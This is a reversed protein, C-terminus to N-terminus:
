TCRKCIGAKFGGWRKPRVPMRSPHFQSNLHGVSVVVAVAGSAEQPQVAQLPPLQLLQPVHHNLKGEPFPKGQEFASPQLFQAVEMVFHEVWGEEAPSSLAPPTLRGLADQERTVPKFPRPTNTLHKATSQTHEARATNPLEARSLRTARRKHM